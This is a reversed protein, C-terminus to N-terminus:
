FCLSYLAISLYRGWGRVYFVYAGVLVFCLAFKYVLPSYFHDVRAEVLTAFIDFM